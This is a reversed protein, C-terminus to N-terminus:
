CPDAPDAQSAASPGIGMANPALDQCLLAALYGTASGPLHGIEGDPCVLVSHGQASTMCLTMGMAPLFSHGLVLVLGGLPASFLVALDDAVTTCALYRRMLWNRTFMRTAWPASRKGPTRLPLPPDIWLMWLSHFPGSPYKSQHPKPQQSFLKIGPTLVLGLGTGHLAKVEGKSEGREVPLCLGHWARHAKYAM